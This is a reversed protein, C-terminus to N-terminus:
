KLGLGKMEPNQARKIANYAKMATERQNCFNGGLAILKFAHAAAGLAVNLRAVEAALNNRAERLNYSQDPGCRCIMRHCIQCSM